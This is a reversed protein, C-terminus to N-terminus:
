SVLATAGSRKSRLPRTSGSNSYSSITFYLRPYEDHVQGPHASKLQDLEARSIVKLNECQTLLEPVFNRWCFVGDQNLLQRQTYEDAAQNIPLLMNTIAM